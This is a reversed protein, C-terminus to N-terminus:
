GDAERMLSMEYSFREGPHVSDSLALVRGGTDYYRRRTRLAAAGPQADLAAAERETLAGASIQQDIRATPVGKEKAIWDIVLGNLEVFVEVPPSIEPRVYIETFALPPQGPLGRTGSIKFFEGGPAIGFRRGAAADLTVTESGSPSLRADRVYQMLDDANGLRQAFANRSESAIVLTGAGRRRVILGAEALLRLAERVTHRSVNHAECLMHETPLLEGVPPDGAAIRSKITEALTVYRPALGGGDTGEPGSPTDTL